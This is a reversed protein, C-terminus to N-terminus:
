VNKITFWSAHNKVFEEDYYYGSELFWNLMGRSIYKVAMNFYTKKNSGDYSPQSILLEFIKPEDHIVSIECLSHIKDLIYWRREEILFKIFEYCGREIIDKLVFENEETFVDSDVMWKFLEFYKKNTVVYFCYRKNWSCGKDILWQFIELKGSRVAADATAEEFPCNKDEILWKLIEFHGKRAATITLTSNIPCENEEVLLKLIAMYGNRIAENAYLTLNFLYGQKKLWEISDIKGGKIAYISLDVDLRKLSKEGHIHLPFLIKQCSEPPYGLLNKIWNLIEIHGGRLAHIFWDFLSYIHYDDKEFAWKLIAIHGHSASIYFTYKDFRCEGKRLLKLIKLNGTKAATKVFREKECSDYNITHKYIRYYEDREHPPFFLMEKRKNFFFETLNFYNMEICTNIIEFSRFKPIFSRFHVRKIKIQIDKCTITFSFLSAIDIFSLTLSLIEDPLHHPLIEEENHDNVILLHQM